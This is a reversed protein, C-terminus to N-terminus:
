PWVTWSAQHKCQVDQVSAAHVVLCRAVLRTPPARHEPLNATHRSIMRDPAASLHLRICSSCVLLEDLALWKPLGYVSAAAVIISQLHPPSDATKEKVSDKAPISM